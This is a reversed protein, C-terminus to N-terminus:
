WNPSGIINLTRNGTEASCWHVPEQLVVQRIVKGRDADGQVAEWVGVQQALNYPESNLEYGPFLVLM